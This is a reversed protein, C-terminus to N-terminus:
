RLMNPEVVPIGAREFVSVGPVAVVNPSVRTGPAFGRAVALEGDRRWGAIFLEYHNAALLDTVMAVSAGQRALHDAEVEILFTAERESLIRKAGVLAAHEAGELDLKIVRPKSGVLADDLTVVPVQETHGGEQKGPSFSTLAAADGEFVTLSLTGARDALAASRIEVNHFDSLSVNEHLAQRTGRAPEFAIVNGSPGVRSAAVLSYLGVNAGGDVFLDGSSLLRRVGEIDPDRLGYRYLTLGLATDLSVAMRARGDDYPVVVRRLREVRRRLLSKAVRASTRLPHKRFADNRFMAWM